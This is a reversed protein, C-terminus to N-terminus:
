QLLTVGQQCFKFGDREGVIFGAHASCLFACAAGFEGITGYRRAPITAARRARAEDISIGEREAVPGDGEVVQVCTAVVHFLVMEDDEVVPITGATWSPLGLIEGGYPELLIDQMSFGATGLGVAVLLRAANGHRKFEQWTQRFPPRPLHPATRKPDRAEQQWLAIVNLGITVVAAGQIVQILHQGPLDNPHAKGAFVLLVGLVSLPLLYLVALIQQGFLLVLLPVSSFLALVIFFKHRLKM